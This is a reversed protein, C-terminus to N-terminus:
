CEKQQNQMFGQAKMWLPLGTTANRLFFAKAMDGYIVSFAINVGNYTYGTVTVEVGIDPRAVNNAEWFWTPGLGYIKTDTGDVTLVMGGGTGLYAKVTGTKEFPTGDLVGAYACIPVLLIAVVLMWKVMNKMRVGKLFTLGDRVM